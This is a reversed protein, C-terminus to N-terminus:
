RAVRLGLRFMTEPDAWEIHGPEIVYIAEGFASLTDGAIYSYGL